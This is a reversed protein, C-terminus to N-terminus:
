LYALFNRLSFYDFCWNRRAGPDEITAAIVDPGLCSEKFLGDLSMSETTVM